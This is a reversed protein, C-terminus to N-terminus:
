PLLFLHRSRNWCAGPFPRTKAPGPHAPSFTSLHGLPRLRPMPLATYPFSYRPNLDWGRRWWRTLQRRPVSPAPNSRPDRFPYAGGEGGDLRSSLLEISLADSQPHIWLPNILEAVVQAVGWDFGPKPVM